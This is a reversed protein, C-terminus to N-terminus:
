KRRMNNLNMLVKNYKDKVDEILKAKCDQLMGNLTKMMKNYSPMKGM